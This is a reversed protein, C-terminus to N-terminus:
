FGLAGPLALLPVLAGLAVPISWYEMNIWFLRHRRFLLVKENTRPDLLERPPKGNLRRGVRWNVWAAAMLGVSFALFAFNPHGSFTLGVQVLAGVIVATVAVIPIVLVGWGSWILLM